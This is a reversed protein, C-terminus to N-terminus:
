NENLLLMKLLKVLAYLFDLTIFLIVWGGGGSLLNVKEDWNSGSYTGSGGTSVFLM